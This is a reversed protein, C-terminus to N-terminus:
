SGLLREIVQEAAASGWDRAGVAVAAIAGGRDILISTPLGAMRYEGAVTM